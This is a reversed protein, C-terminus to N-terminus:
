CSRRACSSSIRSANMTQAILGVARRCYALGRDLGRTSHDTAAQWQLGIAARTLVDAQFTIPASEFGAAAIVGDWASVLAAASGVTHEDLHDRDKARCHCGPLLRSPFPPSRIGSLSTMSAQRMPPVKVPRIIDSEERATFM